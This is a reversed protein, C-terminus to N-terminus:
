FRRCKDNQLAPFLRFGARAVTPDVRILVSLLKRFGVDIMMTTEDRVFPFSADYVSLLIPLFLGRRDLFWFCIAM